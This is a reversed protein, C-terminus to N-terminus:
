RVRYEKRVPQGQRELELTFATTERLQTLLSLIREPGDLELGNVRRLVDGAQLGLQAYVSDPRLFLLQFGRVRGDRLWPVARAQSFLRSPDTLARDLAGRAVEYRNEGLAAVAFGSSAQPPPLPAEHAAEISLYELRDGNLVLVRNREIRLLKAGLVEDGVRAPRASLTGNEQIVAVTWEGSQSVLTGLLRVPLESRAPGSSTESSADTPVPLGLLQALRSTDLPRSAAMSPPLAAALASAPPHAVLAQEMALDTTRALLAAAAAVLTLHVLAFRRPLREM